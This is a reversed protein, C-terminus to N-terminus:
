LVIDVFKDAVISDPTVICDLALVKVGQQYAECLADNFDPHKKVNPSFSNIGKMKIIFVIYAEYGEKLCVCLENIHKIGRVTPADPFMAHGDVELTVGKVEVYAKRNGDEIYFDFRSNGYKVEPKVVADKSFLNGRKVWEHFVGNPVQSDVNVLRDGKYVSILDFKTKRHSANNEQVFARVNPVFLEMCRGTNKVHCIEINGDIEVHAIFRNPREIFRGEKVNIYNM